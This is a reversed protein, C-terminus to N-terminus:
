ARLLERLLGVEEFGLRAYWRKPWDGDAALLFTLGHSAVSARLANSVVARAFGGDRFEPLTGVEEIQGTEGDSYLRCCSAVSGDVLTAFCRENTAATVLDSAALLQQVTEEGGRVDPDSRSIAASAARLADAEVEQVRPHDPLALTRGRYVMVSDAQARWGSPELLAATRAASDDDVFVLRCHSLGVGALLAEAERVLEPFAEEGIAAEVWVFNRSWVRPLEPCLCATGFPFREIRTSAREDIGRLFALARERETV